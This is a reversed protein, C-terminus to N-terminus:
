IESLLVERGGEARSRIGAIVLQMLEVTEAFPFPREGTRLYAIFAELQSKFSFFTDGTAVNVHGATGILQLLGFGGFMDYNAVVVVDAGNRHKLHVLNREQTGINRASIFGPGLIPYM